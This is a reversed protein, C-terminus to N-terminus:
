AEEAVGAEDQHQHGEGQLDDKGEDANPAGEGPPVHRDADDAPVEEACEGVTKFSGRDVGKESALEGGRRADGGVAKGPVLAGKHAGGAVRVKGIGRGDATEDRAAAAGEEV